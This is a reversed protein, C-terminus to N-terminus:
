TEETEINIEDMTALVDTWGMEALEKAIKGELIGDLTKCTLAFEQSDRKLHKLKGKDDAVYAWTGGGLSTIRHTEPAIVFGGPKGSAAARSRGKGM